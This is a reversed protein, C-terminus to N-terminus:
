VQLTHTAGREEFEFFVAGTAVTRTANVPGLRCLAEAGGRTSIGGGSLVM